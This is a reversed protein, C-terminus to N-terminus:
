FGMTGPSRLVTSSRRPAGEAPPGVQCNHEALALLIEAAVSGEAYAIGRLEVGPAQLPFIMM